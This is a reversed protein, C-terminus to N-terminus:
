KIFVKEVQWARSAKGKWQNDKPDHVSIFRYETGELTLIMEYGHYVGKKLRYAFNRRSAAVQIPDGLNSVEEEATVAVPRVIRINKHVPFMVQNM